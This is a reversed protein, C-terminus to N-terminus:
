LLLPHSAPKFYCARSLEIAKGYDKKLDLFIVLYLPILQRFLQPTLGMLPCSGDLLKAYAAPLADSGGIIVRLEDMNFEMDSALVTESAAPLHCRRTAFESIRTFRQMAGDFAGFAFHNSPPLSLTQSFQTSRWATPGRRFLAAIM